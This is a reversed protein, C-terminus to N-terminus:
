KPSLKQQLYFITENEIEIDEESQSAKIQEHAASFLQTSSTSIITAWKLALATFNTWCNEINKDNPHTPLISLIKHANNQHLADQLRIPDHSIAVLLDINNWTFDEAKHTETQIQLSKVFEWIACLPHQQTNNNNNSHHVDIQDILETIYSVTIETATPNSSALRSIKGQENVKLTDDLILDRIDMLAWKNWGSEKTLTRLSSITKTLM